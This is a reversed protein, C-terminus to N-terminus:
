VSTGLWCETWNDGHRWDNPTNLEVRHESILLKCSPLQINARYDEPVWILLEGAEGLLWGEVFDKCEAVTALDIVGDLSQPRAVAINWVRITSDNSGSVLSQGDPTFAVTNVDSTHGFLMVMQSGNMADWLRVTCDGAGTAIFLGNPSYSVSNISRTHGALKLVYQGMEIEWVQGVLEAAGVIRTGTPSFAISFSHIYHEDTGLPKQAKQGSDMDWLHIRGQQDGAALLRGDPSFALSAVSPCHRLPSLKSRKHTNIDWIRVEGGTTGIALLKTDPSLAVACVRRYNEGHIEGIADGTQANLIQATGGISGFVFIQGTQLVSVLRVLDTHGLLSPLRPEGTQADWIRITERNSQSVILAGDATVAVSCVDDSHAPFPAPIPQNDSADWIRITNDQASTALYQGDSSFTASRVFHSHGRLMVSSADGVNWHLNWLQINYGTSPVTAVLLKGDGAFHISKIELSHGSLKAIVIQTGMEWCQITSDQLGAFIKTGDVSFCITQVRVEHNLVRAGSPEGSRCDWLRVTKDESGSALIDGGPSFAISTVKEVHDSMVSILQGTEAVCLCVRNDWSASAVWCGDASFIVSKVLDSHELMRLPPQLPYQLNWICVHGKTTGAALHKGTPSVAVSHVSDGANLSPTIEDGTRTDWIRVTDDDSGSVLRGDPLYAVSTVSGTHGTLTMVLRGDHRDIGFTRVSINGTCNSSFLQYVLSSKAAFPLASLYIHPASRQISELSSAVFANCDRLFRTLETSRVQTDWNLSMPNFIELFSVSAAAFILMAAARRVEGLISMVELWFLFQRRFIVNIEEYSAGPEGLGALHYAWQLCAYELSLTFTDPKIPSNPEHSSRSKSINFQLCKRMIRLCGRALLEDGLAAPIRIDLAAREFLYDGFSAHVTRLMPQDAMDPVLVVSRLRRLSARLTEHKWELLEALALTSLPMKAMLICALVQRTADLERPEIKATNSARTLVFEYIVDLPGTAVKSDKMTFLATRLRTMRDDSSETDLVYTVVTSAFIFLGDSHDALLDVDSETYWEEELLQQSFANSIYLRIDETVEIPDITHLRLITGHASKSIASTSIHIEPRSTVIFKIKVDCAFTSIAQLLKKVDNEDGCEDLADIIFIITPCASALNALPQQLLAGIQVPIPKAAALSDASLEKVLAAAFDESKEALAVALSPLIYRADTLEAVNVTRSCFFAGGFVVDPDAQLVHCLTMAITTKGTGALGALWFMRTPDNKAWDMVMSLVGLRTGPMCGAQERQM